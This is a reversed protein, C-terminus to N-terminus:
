PKSKPFIFLPIFFLLLNPRFGGAIAFVSLWLLWPGSKHKDTRPDLRMAILILLTAFLGEWTYSLAQAGFFLRAPAALTLLAAAIPIDTRNPFFRNALAYIVPILLASGLASTLLLASHDDAGTIWQTFKALLLLYLYGPPHPQHDVPSFRDMGLVFQCADWDVPIASRTLFIAGGAIFLIVCIFIESAPNKRAPKTM